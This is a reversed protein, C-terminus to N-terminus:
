VMLNCPLRSRIMCLDPSNKSAKLRLSSFRDFRLMLRKLHFLTGPHELLFEKSSLRKPARPVSCFVYEPLHEVQWVSCPLIMFLM